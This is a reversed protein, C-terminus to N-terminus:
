ESAGESAAADSAEDRAHFTFVPCPARRVVRETVSGILFHDLGTLGRTAMMILDVDHTEAFDVIRSAVKGHAVHGQVAVAPGGVEESLEDLARASNKVIEPDMKVLSVGPVGTDRFVPVMREEAVFLLDLRAQYLDAMEKATRLAQKSPESFDIPALIRGVTQKESVNEGVTLVPCPARRVVKEAVSGLLIHQIGSRGHTGMVILDAESNAAYTLVARAVNLDHELAVDTEVGTTEPDPALKQLGDRASTELDSRLAEVQPLPEAEGYWEPAYEAMVHLLQLRADFRQALDVAWNLAHRAGESFDIPVLITRITM